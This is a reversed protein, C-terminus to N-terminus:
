RLCDYRQVLWGFGNVHLYSGENLSLARTCLKQLQLKTLERNVHVKTKRSDDVGLLGACFQSTLIM